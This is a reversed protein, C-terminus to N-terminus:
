AFLLDDGYVEVLMSGGIANKGFGLRGVRRPRLEIRHETLGTTSFVTTTATRTRSILLKSCEPEVSRHQVGALQQGKANDGREPQHHIMSGSVIGTFWRQYRSADRKDAMQKTLRHVPDFVPGHM